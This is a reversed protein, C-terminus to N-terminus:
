QLTGLLEQANEIASQRETPNSALMKAICFITQDMDLTEGEKFCYKERFSDIRTIVMLMIMIDDQDKLKELKEHSEKQITYFKKLLSVWETEQAFKYCEANVHDSLEQPLIIM